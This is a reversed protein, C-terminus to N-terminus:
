YEASADAESILKVFVEELTTQGVGWDLIGMAQKNEEMEKFLKVLIGPAPPFQYSTSTAFADIKEFGKPLISEVFQVARQTSDELTNFFLKFGSGYIEKLRIPNAICRLTGKAMIGIRQCLAEAEEMSHTTLVVTKTMRAENVINWILRRVEPDLGTTPEDLFVVAPNGLLAIAISLRRKEGGSLGKSLRGEFKGLSVNDMAVKVAQREQSASIGKLRAYFLLHEGVTLDEWLIDFQPCIGIRRYVESIDTKVDFGAISANGSSPEYLGTLISILTTKGAGNPGLLGFCVGDEVAFTVDKVALKPGAGGRGAYVKRMHKIVLPDKVGYAADDIRKREAKVDADEFKTENEDIQVSLALETESSRAPQGSRSQQFRKYAKILDTVPFHWPRRVGFQSPLVGDLYAALLLFVPVEVVMFIFTTRLENPLNLDSLKLPQLSQDVTATNMLDISRYFAFPPWIFFASPFTSGVFISSAALSVIVSCLVFLFVSILALRSTNFLTAFFFAIAIQNHGWIFFVLLLLRIDNVTFLSLQTVRGAIIFVATSLAFLIYFTVYQSIYHAMTNIGNMKMMVLIRLEKEQVLMITFIPLLFSVGFPYLVSGFLGGFNFSFGTTGVTPMARLGQTITANGFATVNSNRLIASTLQTLQLMTRTGTSPFNSSGKLRIDSGYHMNLSYQKSTHNITKFYLAGHPLDNLIADIILYVNTIATYDASSLGKMLASKDVLAIRAIVGNISNAIADDLDSDSSGTANYYPVPQFGLISQTGNTITSTQQYYRTPITGLIGTSATQPSVFAAGSSMTLFGAPSIIASQPSTGILTTSVSSDAAYFAWTRLQLNTFINVTQSDLTGAQLGSVLAQFWGGVPEATYTTDRVYKGSAGPDRDYPTTTSYPYSEGFWFSCPHKSNFAAAGPPGNFVASVKIWNVHSLVSQTTGPYGTSPTTPLNNDLTWIPINSSTSANVNSCQLYEQITLSKQILTNILAALGASILVMM